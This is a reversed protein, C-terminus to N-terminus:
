SKSLIVKRVHCMVTATGVLLLGVIQAGSILIIPNGAGVWADSPPLSGARELTSNPLLCFADLIYYTGVIKELLVLFLFGDAQPVTSTNWISFWPAALALLGVVDVFQLASFMADHHPIGALALRHHWGLCGCVLLATAYVLPRRGSFSASTQAAQVQLLACTAVLALAEVVSLFAGSLPGEIAFANSGSFPAKLALRLVLSVLMFHLYSASIVWCRQSRARWAAALLYACRLAGQFALLTDPDKLLPWFARIQVRLETTPVPMERTSLSLVTAVSILLGFLEPLIRCLALVTSKVVSRYGSPNMGFMCMAMCMMVATDALVKAYGMTMKSM